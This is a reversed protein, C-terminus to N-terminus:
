SPPGKLNTRQTNQKLLRTGNPQLTYFEVIARAQPYYSVEYTLKSWFIQWKLKEIRQLFQLISFFDGKVALSYYTIDPSLQHIRTPLNHSNVVLPPPQVITTSFYDINVDSMDLFLGYLLKSFVRANVYPQQYNKIKQDIQAMEKEIKEYKALFPDLDHDKAHQLITHNHQIFTAIQGQLNEMYQQTQAINHSQSQFILLKWVFTLIFLSGFLIGARYAVSLRDIKFQLKIIKKDIIM